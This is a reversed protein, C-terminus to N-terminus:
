NAPVSPDCDNLPHQQHRKYSSIALLRKGIFQGLTRRIRVGISDTLMQGAFMLAKDRIARTVRVAKVRQVLVRVGIVKRVIAAAPVDAVQDYAVTANM